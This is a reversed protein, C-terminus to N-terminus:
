NSKIKIGSKKVIKKLIESNPHYKLVRNLNTKFIYTNHKFMNEESSLLQYNSFHNLTLIENKTKGLNIPIVHDIQVNDNEYSLGNSAKSNLWNYFEEYGIGLIEYTKSNKIYGQNKLSM